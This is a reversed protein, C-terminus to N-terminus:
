PDKWLAMDFYSDVVGVYVIGCITLQTFLKQKEERM